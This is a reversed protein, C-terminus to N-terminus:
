SIKTPLIYMYILPCNLELLPIIEVKIAWTGVIMDRFYANESSPLSFAM